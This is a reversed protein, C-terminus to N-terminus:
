SIVGRLEDNNDLFNEILRGVFGQIEKLANSLIERKDIIGTDIARGTLNSVVRRGREYLNFLRGTIQFVGTSKKSYFPGKSMDSMNLVQGSLYNDKIYKRSFSSVKALLKDGLVPFDRVLQRLQKEAEDVVNLRIRM